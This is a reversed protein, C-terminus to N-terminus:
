ACLRRDSPCRVGLLSWRGPHRWPDCYSGRQHCDLGLKWSTQSHGALGNQQQGSPSPHLLRCSNLSSPSTKEWLFVAGNCSSRDARRGSTCDIEILFWVSSFRMGLAHKDSSNNCSVARSPNLLHAEFNNFICCTSQLGRDTSGRGSEGDCSAGRFADFCDGNVCRKMGHTQLISNLPIM